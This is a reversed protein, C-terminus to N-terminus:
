GLHIIETEDLKMPRIHHMYKVHLAYGDSM